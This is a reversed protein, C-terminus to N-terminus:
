HRYYGVLQIQYVKSLEQFEQGISKWFKEDRVAKEFREQLYPDFRKIARRLDPWNGCRTNLAEGWVTNAIGSIAQFIPRLQTIYPLIPGVFAYTEIGADHLKEMASLRRASTTTHPEFVSRAREDLTTITFGVSCQTLRKLLDLDRLVLDSKTLISVPFDYAVLENLISRTIEYKKELPQYADTVSGLLITGRERMRRLDHSIAEAGNVKIDLFKGWLETHKSFRRM